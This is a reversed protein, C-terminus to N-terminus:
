HIGFTDHLLADILKKQQTIMKKLEKVITPQPKINKYADLREDFLSQLALINKFLKKAITHEAFHQSKLYDLAEPSFAELKTTLKTLFAAATHIQDLQEEFTAKSADQSLIKALATNISLPLLTATINQILDHNEASSTTTVPAPQSNAVPAPTSPQQQPSQQPQIQAPQLPQAQPQAAPQNAQINQQSIAEMQQVLDHYTLPAALSTTTSFLLFYKKYM